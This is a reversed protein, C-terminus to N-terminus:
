VLAVSAPTEDDGIWDTNAYGLQGNAGDGWCRVGGGSLLACTHWGDAVIQTVTGGVSM